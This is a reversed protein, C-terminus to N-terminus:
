LGLICIKKGYFLVLLRSLTDSEREWCFVQGARHTFALPLACLVARLWVVALGGLAVEGQGLGIVRQCLLVSPWGTAEILDLRISCEMRWCGGRILSFPWVGALGVGKSLEWGQVRNARREEQSHVVLVATM